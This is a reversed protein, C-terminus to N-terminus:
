EEDEGFFVAVSREIGDFPEARVREGREAILVNLYGDPTYRHESLTEGIPDLLWYHPVKSAHYLRMKKVTDNSANTPSLVECIWDAVVNVPVAGQMEPLRERRWGAMDPRRLESGSFRTLVEAAFWWGGPRSPPGGSRRDFPALSRALRIQAGGHKQSGAEKPILDGGVIEYREEEPM